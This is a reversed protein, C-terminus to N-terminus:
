FQGSLGLGGQFGGDPLVAFSPSLQVDSLGAEALRGQARAYIKEGPSSCFLGWTGKLVSLGGFSLTVWGATDDLQQERVLISGVGLAIGGFVISGISGAVRRQRDRTAVTELMALAAESSLEDDALMRGVGVEFPSPEMLRWAGLGIPMLGGVLFSAGVFRNMSDSNDSFQTDDVLFYTGLGIMGAGMVFKSIASHFRHRRELQELNVLEERLIADATPQAAVAVTAADPVPAPEQARAPRAVVLAATAAALTLALIRFM